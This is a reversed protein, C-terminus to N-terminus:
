SERENIKILDALAEEATAGFGPNDGPCSAMWRRDGSASKRETLQIQREVDEDM